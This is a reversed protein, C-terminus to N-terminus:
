RAYSIESCCRALQDAANLHAAARAKEAMNLLGKKDSFRDKLLEALREPTLQAQDIVVAAGAQELYRANATQHDDVAHPYPILIAALGVCAIESLTLAGARCIVLDAWGYAQEMDEIFSVIKAEVGAERYAERAFQIQSRGAQHWIQLAVAGKLQGVAQPIVRNLAAAGLSGGMVLVRIPGERSSMREAPLPLNLVSQRLPNGICAVNEAAGFSGPYAEFVKKALPKLIRNTLGAIANQEHILLPQRLLWAAIGGPGSAFGGMGLVCCPRLRWVVVLAQSLAVLLRVPAALLTWRGKGRLGAVSICHLPISENVVVQSEIGRATGLWEVRHNQQLLKRAVALAPFVHGGTGGAMILVTLQRPNKAGSM